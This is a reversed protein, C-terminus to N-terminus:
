HHRIRLSWPNFDYCCIAFNKTLKVDVCFVEIVWTEQSGADFTKDVNRVTAGVGDRLQVGGELQELSEGALKHGYWSADGGHARILQQYVALCM